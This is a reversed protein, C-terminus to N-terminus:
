SDGDDADYRDADYRDADDRTTDHQSSHIATIGWENISVAYM